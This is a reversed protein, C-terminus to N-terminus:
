YFEYEYYTISKSNEIYSSKVLGNDYYEWHRRNLYEGSRLHTEATILKGQIDYRYKIIRDNPSDTSFCPGGGMPMASTSYVTTEIIRQLSDQKVGKPIEKAIFISDFSCNYFLTDLHGENRWHKLRRKYVTSVKNKHDYNFTNKILSTDNDYSVGRFKYNPKYITKESITQEILNQNKDYSYHIDNESHDASLSEIEQEKIHLLNHLSDYQFFYDYTTSIKKELKLNQLLTPWWWCPMTYTSHYHSPNGYIDFDLSYRLKSKKKQSGDKKIGSYFKSVKKIKNNVVEKKTQEINLGILNTQYPDTHYLQGYGITVKLFFIILLLIIEKTKM